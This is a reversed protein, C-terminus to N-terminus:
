RRTKAAKQLENLKISESIGKDVQSFAAISMFLGLVTAIVGQWVSDDLGEIGQSVLSGGFIAFLIGLRANGNM